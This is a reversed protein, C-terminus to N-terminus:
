LDPSPSPSPPVTLPSDQVGSSDVKEAGKLFTPSTLSFKSEPIYTVNLSQVNEYKLVLMYGPVEEWYHKGDETFKGRKSLSLRIQKLEGDSDTDFGVVVGRYLRTKEKTLECMVDLVTYHFEGTEHQLGRGEFTYFWRNSYRFISPWRLDLNQSYVLERLRMGCVSALAATGLFYLVIYWFYQDFVAAYRATTDSDSNVKGTLFGMVIEYDVYFSIIGQHYLLDILSVTIIHFPLSYLISQYIEETLNKPLVTGTFDESYYFKRLMYGPVALLLIVLTTLAINGM